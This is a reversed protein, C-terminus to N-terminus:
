SKFVRKLDTPFFPMVIFMTRPNVIDAEFNWSPLGAANDTFSHLIVMVHRHAPLRNPDSLLATEADFEKQIAVTNARGEQYNLMVKVAFQVRPGGRLQALYVYSCVGSQSLFM